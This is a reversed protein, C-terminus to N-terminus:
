RFPFLKKFNKWKMSVQLKEYLTKQLIFDGGGWFFFFIM